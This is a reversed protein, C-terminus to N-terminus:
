VISAMVQKGDEDCTAVQTGEDNDGVISTLETGITAEGLEEALTIQTFRENRVRLSIYLVIKIAVMLVSYAVSVCFQLILILVQMLIIDSTNSQIVNGM